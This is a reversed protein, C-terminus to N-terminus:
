PATGEPFVRELMAAWKTRIEEIRAEQKGWASLWFVIEPQQVAPGGPGVSVRFMDSQPTVAAIQSAPKRDFLRSEAVLGALLPESQLRAWAEDKSLAVRRRLYVVQRNEGPHRELYHKLSRLEFAWGRRTGEVWGDWSADMPFGSTVARVVTGGGRTEILYDTVQGTEEGEHFIWATRLQSPPNWVLIKMKGAYENRWSMWIHGGAGPEVKADLPFWRELEAAETLAQWVREASADVTIEGEASRTGPREPALKLGETM